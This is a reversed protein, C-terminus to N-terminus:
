KYRFVGRWYLSEPVADSQPRTSLIETYATEAANWQQRAVVGFAGLWTATAGSFRGAGSLGRNSPAQYWRSPASPDNADVARRLARISKTAGQHPYQRPPLPCQEGYLRM